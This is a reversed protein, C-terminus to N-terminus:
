NATAHYPPSVLSVVKANLEPKLEVVYAHDGGPGGPDQFQGNVWGGPPMEIWALSNDIAQSSVASEPSWPLAMWESAGTTRYIVHGILVNTGPHVAYFVPYNGGNSLRFRVFHGSSETQYGKGAVKGQSQEFSLDFHMKLTPTSQGSPVQARKGLQDGIILLVAVALYFLAYKLYIKREEQTTSGLALISPRLRGNGNGSSPSKSRRLTMWSKPKDSM